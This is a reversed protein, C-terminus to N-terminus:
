NTRDDMIAAGQPFRIRMDVEAGSAGSRGEMAQSEVVAAERARFSDQSVFRDRGHAAGVIGTKVGLPPPIWPLAASGFKYSRAM